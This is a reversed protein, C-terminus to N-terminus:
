YKTTGRRSTGPEAQAPRSVTRSQKKEAPQRQQGRGSPKSEAPTIKVFPFEIEKVAKEYKDLLPGFLEKNVEEQTEFYLLHGGSPASEITVRTVVAMVHKDLAEGVQDTHAAWAKGSTPAVALYRIEAKAISAADKLDTASICALRFGNKCAKGKGPGDTSEWQNAWCFECECGTKGGKPQYQTGGQPFISDAHSRIEPEGEGARGFAFCIPSDPNKPDFKKGPTYLTNMIIFDVIVLDLYDEKVINGDIHFKAGQTGINKGTQGAMTKATEVSKKGLAALRADYNALATTKKAPAMHEGKFKTRHTEGTCDSLM